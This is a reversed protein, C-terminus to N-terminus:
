GEGRPPEPLPVNMQGMQTQKRARGRARGKDKMDRMNDAHTGLWDMVRAVIADISPDPDTYRDSISWQSGYLFAEKVAERVRGETYEQIFSLLSEATDEPTCGQRRLVLVISALRERLENM